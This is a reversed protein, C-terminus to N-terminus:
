FIEDIRNFEGFIVIAEADLPRLKVFTTIFGVNLSQSSWKQQQHWDASRL